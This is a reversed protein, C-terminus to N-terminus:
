AAFITCSGSAESARSALGSSRCPRATLSRVDAIRPEVVVEPPILTVTVGGSVPSGPTQRVRSASVGCRYQMGPITLKRHRAARAGARTMRDELLGVPRAPAEGRLLGARVRRQVQEFIHVGPVAAGAHTPLDGVPVPVAVEHTGPEPVPP